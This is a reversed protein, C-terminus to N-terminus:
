RFNPAAAPPTKIDCFSSKQFIDFWLKQLFFYNLECFAVAVFLIKELSFARIRTLVREYIAYDRKKQWSNIRGGWM